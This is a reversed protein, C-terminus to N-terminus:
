KLSIYAGNINAGNADVFGITGFETKTGAKATITKNGRQLIVVNPPLVGIVKTASRVGNGGDMSPMSPLLPPTPAMMPCTPNIAGNTAAFSNNGFIVTNYPLFPSAAAATVFKKGFLSTVTDVSAPLNYTSALPQSFLLFSSFFGVSSLCSALYFIAKKGKSYKKM